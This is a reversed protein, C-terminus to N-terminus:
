RYGGNNRAFKVKLYDVDMSWQKDETMHRCDYALYTKRKFSISMHDVRM